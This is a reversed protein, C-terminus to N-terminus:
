ISYVTISYHPCALCPPYITSRASGKSHLSTMGGSKTLVHSSRGKSEVRDLIQGGIPVKHAEGFQRPEDAQTALVSRARGSRCGRSGGAHPTLEPLMEDICQHCIWWCSGTDRRSRSAIQTRMEATVRGVRERQCRGRPTERKIAPRPGVATSIRQVGAASAM